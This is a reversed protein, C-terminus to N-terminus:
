ANVSSETCYRWSDFIWHHLVEEVQVAPQSALSLVRYPFRIAESIGEWLSM